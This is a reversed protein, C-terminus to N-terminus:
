HLFETKTLELVIWFVIADTRLLGCLLGCDLLVVVLDGAEEAAMRGAARPTQEALHLLHRQDDAARIKLAAADDGERFEFELRRRLGRRVRDRWSYRLRKAVCAFWRAQSALGGWSRCGEGAKM